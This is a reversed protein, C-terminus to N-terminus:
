RLGLKKIRSRIAGSKRQLKNAMESVSLGKEFYEKLIKDQESSWKEYANPYKTRVEAFNYSKIPKSETKEIPKPNQSKIGFKGFKSPFHLVKVRGAVDVSNVLPEFPYTGYYVWFLLNANSALLKKVSKERLASDIEIAVIPISGIAWVVDIYGNHNDGRFGPLVFEKEPTLFFESSLAAIKDQLFTHFEIKTKGLEVGRLYIEEVYARIEQENPLSLKKM